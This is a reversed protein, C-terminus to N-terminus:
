PRGPPSTTAVSPAGSRTPLTAASLGASSARSSARPARDIHFVRYHKSAWRVDDQSVREPEGSASAVTLKPVLDEAGALLFTDTEDEYLYTPLGKDTKRRIVPISFVWGLGFPGNGAGSDYSLTLQPEFGGRESSLASPVSMWGTGTVPNAAFKEGIGRVAGDGKPLSVQPPSLAFAPSEKGAAGRTESSSLVQEALHEEM